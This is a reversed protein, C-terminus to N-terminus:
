EKCPLTLKSPSGLLLPSLNQVPTSGVTSADLLTRWQCVSLKTISNKRNILTVQTLNGGGKINAQNTNNEHVSVVACGARNKEQKRIPGHREGDYLNQLNKVYEPYHQKETEHTFLM